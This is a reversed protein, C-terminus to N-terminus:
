FKRCCTWRKGDICKYIQRKFLCFLSISSSKFTASLIQILGVQIPLYWIKLSAPTVFKSIIKFSSKAVCPNRFNKLFVDFDKVNNSSEM